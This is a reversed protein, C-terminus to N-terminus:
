LGKILENWIPVYAKIEVFDMFANFLFMTAPQGATKIGGTNESKALIYKPAIDVEGDKARFWWDMKGSQEDLKKYKTPRNYDYGVQSAINPQNEAGVQGVGFEIYTAKDSKNVLKVSNEYDTASGKEIEWGARILSLVGSDIDAARQDLSNNALEILRDACRELFKPILKVLHKSYEEIQKIAKDISQKSYGINIKM